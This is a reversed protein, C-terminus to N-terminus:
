WLDLREIWPQERGASSPTGAIKMVFADTGPRSADYGTIIMGGDTTISYDWAIYGRTTDGLSRTEIVEGNFSVFSRVVYAYFGARNIRHSGILMISGDAMLQGDHYTFHGDHPYSRVSQVNGGADVKVHYTVGSRLSSALSTGQSRGIMLFGGDVPFVLEGVDISDTGYTRFWLSDGNSDLRLLFVDEGVSPPTNTYGTIIYGGDALQQVHNPRVYFSDHGYHKYWRVDGDQGVKYAFARRRDYGTCLFNGDNTKIASAAQDDRDSGFIKEFIVREDGDVRSVLMDAPEPIPKARTAGLMTYTGDANNFIWQYSSRLSSGLVKESRTRGMHDLSVLYSSVQADPHSRFSSTLGGMLYGGDSTPIIALGYDSSDGGFYKIWEVSQASAPLAASGILLLLALLTYM